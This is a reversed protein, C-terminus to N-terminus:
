KMIPNEIDDPKQHKIIKVTFIAVLLNLVGDTVLLIGLFIKMLKQLDSLNFILALGILCCIIAVIFILWWLNIGFKKSDLSIQIKILGDAVALFGLIAYLYTSSEEPKLFLFLAVFVMLIGSAMDHQFALRFLDKSFYGFIRVAGFVLIFIPLITGFNSDFIDNKFFNAIGFIICLASMTIYSIKAALMPKTSRM